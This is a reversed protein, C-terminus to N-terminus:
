ENAKASIGARHVAWEKEVLHTVKEVTAMLKQLDSSWANLIDANSKKAEFNIVGAPRDMKAFVTGSSVLSALSSESAEPSLDLLQALRALRIKTYYKSIVRINHEVVRKHLEEWRHDGEKGPAFTPTSRLMPGYLTEIGPWRMLEPTTFCKLLNKHEPVIDLGETAEVRAMLDSQENNYPSLALFVVVNRLVDAAKAADAKVSPTDHIERYYKCADLFKNAHLAHKIMLDYFRLKLDQQKDSEFFKPNIKKAVIALRTFDGRELNLRMQELIFEVKERRDMSGFTEVALEQLTEAADHVKGEAYLMQSLILTVRAREVEVFIKGETVSRLTNVLKRRTAQDVGTDGIRKGEDMLQTIQENEKGQKERERREEERQRKKAANDKTPDAEADKMEEDEQLADQQKRREEEPDVPKHLSLMVLQVMRTIAQKLQGHKKSLSTVTDALLDWNTATPSPTTRILLVALLLLRTTSALDAANRAKKELVFVNELAQQLQGAKAAQQAQPILQDVDKTFDAEQKKDVQGSM